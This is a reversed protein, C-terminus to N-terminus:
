RSLLKDFFSRKKPVIAESGLQREPLGVNQAYLTETLNLGRSGIEYGQINMPKATTVAKVDGQSPEPNPLAIQDEVDIIEAAAKQSDFYKDEKENGLKNPITGEPNDNIYTPVAGEANDFFLPEMAASENKWVPRAMTALYLNKLNVTNIGSNKSSIDEIENSVLIPNLNRGYPFSGVVRYGDEDSYPISSVTVSIESASAMDDIKYLGQDMGMIKQAAKLLEQRKLSEPDTPYITNIGSNSLSTASANGLAKVDKETQWALADKTITSRQDNQTQKEKDKQATIYEPSEVTKIKYLNGTSLLVNSKERNLTDLAAKLSLIQPSTVGTFININNYDIGLQKLENNINDIETNIEALKKESESPQGGLGSLPANSITTTSEVPVASESDAKVPL